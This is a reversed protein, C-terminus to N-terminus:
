VKNVDRICDFKLLAGHLGYLGNYLGASCSRIGDVVAEDFLVVCVLHERPLLLRAAIGPPSRRGLDHLKPTLELEKQYETGKGGSVLVLSCTQSARLAEREM